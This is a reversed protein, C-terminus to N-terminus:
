SEFGFTRRAASNATKYVAYKLCERECALKLLNKMEKDWSSTKSATARLNTKRLNEGQVSEILYIYLQPAGESVEGVRVSNPLCKKASDSNYKSDPFTARFNFVPFM